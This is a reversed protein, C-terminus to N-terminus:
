NGTVITCMKGYFGLISEFHHDVSSVTMIGGDKMAASITSDGKTILGLYNESCASGRKKGATNSTVMVGEYHDMRILGMGTYSGPTACGGLLFTCILFSPLRSSLSKM